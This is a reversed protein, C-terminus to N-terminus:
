IIASFLLMLVAGLLFFMGLRGQEEADGSSSEVYIVYVMTGGAFSLAFPLLSSFGAIFFYGLLTGVVEVVGTLLAILLTKKQGIGLSLLPGIIVMGEPINQVAVSLAISLAESVEGLGFGVGSAIGEPLNHLAMALVFLIVHRREDCEGIDFRRIVKDFAFIAGGGLLIGLGVPYPSGSLEFAPIILSTFSCALMVGSSLAMMVSEYRRVAGKFISGLIGGFFTALGVGLATLIVLTMFIELTLFRVTIM